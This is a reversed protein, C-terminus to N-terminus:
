LQESQRDAVHPARVSGSSDGPVTLLNIDGAIWRKGVSGTNTHRLRAGRWGWKDKTGYTDRLGITQTGERRVVVCIATEPVTNRASQPHSM